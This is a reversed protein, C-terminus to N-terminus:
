EETSRLFRWGESRLAAFAASIRSSHVHFSDAQYYEADRQTRAGVQRGVRRLRVRPYEGLDVVRGLLRARGLGVRHALRQQRRQAGLDGFHGASGDLRAEVQHHVGGRRLLNEHRDYRSRAVAHHDVGAHASRDGDIELIHRHALRQLRDAFYVPVLEPDVARADVDLGRSQLGADELDIVEHAQAGPAAVHPDGRARDRAYLLSSPPRRGDGRAGSSSALRTEVTECFSKQFSTPRARRDSTPGPSPRLM